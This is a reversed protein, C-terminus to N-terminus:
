WRPVYRMFRRMTCPKDVTWVYVKDVYDRTTNAATRRSTAAKIRSRWYVDVLCNTIGDSQWRHGRIGLEEYTKAIIRLLDHGSIDFGVHDLFLSSNGAEKLTDLAGSIVDKNKTSPVSMIVNLMYESSITGNKWLHSIINSALSVGAQYKKDRSLSGPKTDIYLLQLKGAFKGGLTSPTRHIYPM